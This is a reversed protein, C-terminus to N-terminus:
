SSFGFSAAAIRFVFRGNVLCFTLYKLEPEPPLLKSTKLTAVM